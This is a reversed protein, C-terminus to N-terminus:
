RVLLRAALAVPAAAVVLVVVGLWLPTGASRFLALHLQSVPPLRGPASVLRPLYVTAILAAIGALPAAVLPGTAVVAIAAVAIALAVVGAAKAHPLYVFAAAGVAVLVLSLVSRVLLTGRAALVALLCTCGPVLAAVIAALGEVVRRSAGHSAAERTLTEGGTGVIRLATDALSSAAGALYPLRGIGIAVGLAAGLLLWVRGRM